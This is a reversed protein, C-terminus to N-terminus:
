KYQTLGLSNYQSQMSKDLPFGAARGWLVRIQTRDLKGQEWLAALAQKEYGPPLSLGPATLGLGEPGSGERSLDIQLGESGDGPAFRLTLDTQGPPLVPIGYERHLWQAFGMGEGPIDICIGRIKPSLLRATRCVEYSLHSAAVSVTARGPPVGEGDLVGLALIDAIGRFFPRIDVGPWREFGRPPIDREPLLIHKVGYTFFLKRAWRLKRRRVTDGERKLRVCLCDVGGIQEVICDEKGNGELFEVRGLM